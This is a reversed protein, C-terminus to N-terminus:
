TLWEPTLKRKYNFLHVFGTLPEASKETQPHCSGEELPAKKEASQVALM